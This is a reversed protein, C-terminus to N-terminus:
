CLRLLLGHCAHHFCLLSAWMYDPESKFKNNNNAVMAITLHWIAQLANFMSGSTAVLKGAACVQQVAVLIVAQKQIM